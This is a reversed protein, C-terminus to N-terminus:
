YVIGVLGCIFHSDIWNVMLMLFPSIKTDGLYFRKPIILWREMYCRNGSRQFSDYSKNVQHNINADTFFVTKKEKDIGTCQHHFFFTVNPFSCAHEILLANLHSRKIAHVVESDNKGYPQFMLKDGDAHIMRGKLPVTLQMVQEYLGVDALVQLGRTALTMNISLTSQASLNQIDQRRDYVEVMFGRRALFIAMLPGSMGAGIIVARSQM